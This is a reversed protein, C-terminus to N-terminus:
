MAFCCWRVRDRSSSLSTWGTSPFPAHPHCRTEARNKTDQRSMAADGRYTGENPAAIRDVRRRTWFALGFGTNNAISGVTLAHGPFTSAPKGILDHELYSHSRSPAATASSFAPI